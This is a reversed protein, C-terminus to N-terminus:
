LYIFFHITALVSWLKLRSLHRNFLSYLLDVYTAMGCMGSIMFKVFHRYSNVKEKQYFISNNQKTNNKFVKKNKNNAFSRWGDRVEVFCLIFEKVALLFIM